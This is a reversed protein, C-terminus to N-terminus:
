LFEWIRRKLELQVDAYPKNANILVIHENGKIANVANAKLKHTSLDLDTKRRRLEDIDVQLVFM